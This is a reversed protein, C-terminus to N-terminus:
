NDGEMVVYIVNSKIANNNKLADYDAESIPVLEYIIQLKKEPTIKYWTASGNEAVVIQQGYYYVTDSSGIEGAKKAANEAESLSTFYSRADLPFASTPNFAVSFNLKGYDAM